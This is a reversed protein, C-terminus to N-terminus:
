DVTVSQPDAVPLDNVENVTITVTAPATSTNNHTDRAVYTFSDTGSFNANPTYTLQAPTTTNTTGTTVSLTGNQPPTVIFYTLQQGAFPNDEVEPNTGSLAITTATEEDTTASGGNAVPECVDVPANGSMPYATMIKGGCDNDITGDNVLYGVNNNITGANNITGGANNDIEGSNNNNITGGDNEINGGDNNITGNNVITGDNFFMDGTNRLTIGSSVTFTCGSEATFGNVATCTNTSSDWQGSLDNQCSDRGDLVSDGFAEQPMALFSMGAVLSALAAVVALTIRRGNGMM